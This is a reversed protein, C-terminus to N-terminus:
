RSVFFLQATGTPHWGPTGPSIGSATLPVSSGMIIWKKMWSYHPPSFIWMLWSFNLVDSDPCGQSLKDQSLYSISHASTACPSRPHLILWFSPSSLALIVASCPGSDAHAAGFRLSCSPSTWPCEPRSWLHKGPKHSPFSPLCPHHSTQPFTNATSLPPTSIHEARSIGLAGLEGLRKGKPFSPSRLFRPQSCSVHGVCSASLTQSPKKWLHSVSSINLFDIPPNSTLCLFPNSGAFSLTPLVSCILDFLWSYILPPFWHGYSSGWEPFAM